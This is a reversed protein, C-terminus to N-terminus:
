KIKVVPNSQIHRQEEPTLTHVLYVHKNVINSTFPIRWTFVINKESQPAINDIITKSSAVANGNVDSLLAIAEINSIQNLTDNVLTAKYIPTVSTSTTAEGNILEENSIRPLSSNSIDGKGVEYWTPNAQIEFKVNQPIRTGTKLGGEFIIFTGHQPIYSTGKVESITVGDKDFIKFTYPVDFSVYTSNLNEVEAVVSYIGESVKFVRRYHVNIDAASAKCVKSCSGGCDIGTEDQNKLNDFCSATKKIFLIYIPYASVIILTFIIILLVITQRKQAWTM